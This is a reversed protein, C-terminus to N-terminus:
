KLLENCILEATNGDGFIKPFKTEELEFLSKFSSTIKNFSSATLVAKGTEMIEVWETETRLIICPKNFFYAEKQVGGSDTLILSAHKELLIM